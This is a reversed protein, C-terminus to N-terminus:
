INVMYVKELNHDWNATKIPVMKPMEYNITHYTLRVHDHLGGGVCVCVFIYVCVCVYVLYFTM